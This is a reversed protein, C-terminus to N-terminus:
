CSHFATARDKLGVTSVELRSGDDEVVVGSENCGRAGAEGEIQVTHKINPIAQSLEIRAGAKVVM